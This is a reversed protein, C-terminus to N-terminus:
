CAANQDVAPQKLNMRPQILIVKSDSSFATKGKADPRPSSYEMSISPKAGISPKADGTPGDDEHDDTGAVDDRVVIDTAGNVCRFIQRAIGLLDITAEAAACLAAPARARDLGDDVLRKAGAGFGATRAAGVALGRGVRGDMDLEQEGGGSWEFNAPIRNTAAKAAPPNSGDAFHNLLM